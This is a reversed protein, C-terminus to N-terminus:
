ISVGFAVQGCWFCVDIKEKGCTMKPHHCKSEVLLKYNNKFNSIYNFIVYFYSIYIYFYIIEMIYKYLYYNKILIITNKLFFFTKRLTYSSEEDTRFTFTTYRPRSFM